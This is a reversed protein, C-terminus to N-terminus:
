EAEKQTEAPIILEQLSKKIKDYQGPLSNVSFRPLV